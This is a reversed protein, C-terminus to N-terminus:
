HLLLLVLLLQLFLIKQFINKKENNLSLPFILGSMMQEASSECSIDPRLTGSKRSPLHNVHFTLGIKKESFLLFYFALIKSQVKLALLHKSVSLSMVYLISFTIYQVGSDWAVDHDALM